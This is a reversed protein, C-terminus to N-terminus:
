VGYRDSLENIRAFMEQSAVVHGDKIDLFKYKLMWGICPWTDTLTPDDLSVKYVTRPTAQDFETSQGVGLALAVKRLDEAHRHCLNEINQNRDNLDRQADDELQFVDNGNKKRRAALGILLILGDITAALVAAFMAPKDRREFAAIARTFPHATPNYKLLLANFDDIKEQVRQQADRNSVQPTKSMCGQLKKKMNNFGVYYAAGSDGRLVDSINVREDRNSSMVTNVQDPACNMIFDNLNSVGQIADNKQTRPPACDPEGLGDGSDRRVYLIKADAVGVMVRSMAEKVQVCRNGWAMISDYVGKLESESFSTKSPPASVDKILEDLRNIKVSLESVRARMEDNKNRDSNSSISSEISSLEKNIKEQKSLEADYSSKINLYEAYKRRFEIELRKAVDGNGAKTITGANTPSGGFKIETEHKAKVALYEAYMSDMSDKLANVRDDISRKSGALQTMRRVYGDENQKSQIQNLEAEKAKTAATVENYLTQAQSLLRSMNSAWNSYPEATDTILESSAASRITSYLKGWEAQIVIDADSARRNAPEIMDHFSAFSFFCSVIMAVFYITYLWPEEGDSRDDGGLASLRVASYLMTLQVGLSALVAVLTIDTYKELGWYTTFYSSITLVLMCAVSFTRSKMLEALDDNARSIYNLIRFRVGGLAPIGPRLGVQESM